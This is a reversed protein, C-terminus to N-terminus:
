MDLAARIDPPFHFIELKGLIYRGKLMYVLVNDDKVM